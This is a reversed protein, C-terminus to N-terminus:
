FLSCLLSFQSNWYSAAIILSHLPWVAMQQGHQKYTRFLRLKGGEFERIFCSGCLSSHSRLCSSSLNAHALLLFLLLSEQSECNVWEPVLAASCVAELSGLFWSLNEDFM